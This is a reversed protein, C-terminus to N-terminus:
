RITPTVVFWAAGFAPLCWTGEEQEVPVAERGMLPGLVDRVSVVADGCVDACTVAQARGTVNVSALLYEGEGDAQNDVAVGLRVCLVGDENPVVSAPSLPVPAPGSARFFRRTEEAEAARIQRCVPMFRPEDGAASPALLAALAEPEFRERLITRNEDLGADPIFNEACLLGQVYVAPMGRVLQGLAVVALYRDRAMAEDAVEAGNVISWPTGCCEYVVKKGGPLSAYNVLCNRPASALTTGLWDLEEAPLLEAAQKMAMGDHSGLITVYQKGQFVGTSRLFDAFFRGRQRLVAHVALAYSAFQYVMDSEPVDSEPAADGAGLGLYPLLKSNPENVEAILVTDEAIVQLVSRMVTILRHANEEHLSTSGLRKWVYGVADLRIIRCGRRVYDVLIRVVEVLVAWNAFNLDVQRTREKKSVPDQGRSFTTWVWGRGIV